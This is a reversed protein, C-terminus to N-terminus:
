RASRALRLLKSSLTLHAARLAALDIDFGVRRERVSMGIIAGDAGTSDEDSVTLVGGGALSRVNESWHSRDRRDLVLVHCSRDVVGQVIVIRHGNVLKDTLKTLAALLPSATSACVHLPAGGALTDVPWETFFAFNYVFAAKLDNEPVPEARAPASLMAGLCAGACALRGARWTAGLGARLRAWRARRAHSVSTPALQRDSGM